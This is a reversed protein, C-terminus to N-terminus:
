KVLPAAKRNAFIEDSSKEIHKHYLVEGEDIGEQIKILELSLRPGIEM